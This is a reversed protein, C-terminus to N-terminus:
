RETVVRAWCRVVVRAAGAEVLVRACADATAGSTFVDDVLVVTRGALRARHRAPVRFADRVARARAAAAMDRLVPTARHRDVLDPVCAHGTRRGWARAILLAQNYGRSWLRWRHLPVAAVLADAPVGDALRAMAAAVTHALGARGGYKLRLAVARAVEGYAVAARMGSFAFARGDCEECPDGPEPAGCRACAPEGLFRLGSWCTACFRHDADVVTGCGPCRPPLALALADRCLATALRVAAAM